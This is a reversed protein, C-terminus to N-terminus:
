DRSVSLVQLLQELEGNNISFTPTRVRCSCNSVCSVSAEAASTAVEGLSTTEESLTTTEEDLPTTEEGLTTTEEGLPTTEEIPSTSTPGM